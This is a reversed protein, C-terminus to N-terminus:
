NKWSFVDNGDIHVARMHYTYLSCFFRLFYILCAQALIHLNYLFKFISSLSFFPISSSFFLINTYGSFVSFPIRLPHNTIKSGLLALCHRSKKPFFFRNKERSGANYYCNTTGVNLFHEFLYRLTEHFHPGCVRGVANRRM